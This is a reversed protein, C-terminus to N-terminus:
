PDPAPQGDSGYEAILETHLDVVSGETSQFSLSVQVGM